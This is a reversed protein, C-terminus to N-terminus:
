EKRNKPDKHEECYKVRPHDSYKPNHCNDYECTGEDPGAETEVVTKPTMSGESYVETKTERVKPKEKPGSLLGENVAEEKTLNPRFIRACGLHHSGDKEHGCLFCSV